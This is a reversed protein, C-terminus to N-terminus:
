RPAEARDGARMLAVVDSERYRVARKGTPRVARLNALRRVTAPRLGLLRGAENATLLRDNTSEM